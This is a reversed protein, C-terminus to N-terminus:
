AKVTGNRFPSEYPGLMRDIELLRDVLQKREVRLKEVQNFVLLRQENPLGYALDHLTVMFIQAMSYGEYVRLTRQGNELNSVTSYTWNEHGLQHM